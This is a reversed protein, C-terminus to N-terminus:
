SRAGAPKVEPLSSGTGFPYSTSHVGLAPRSSTFVIRSVVPVRVGVGRDDMGYGTAIGVASDRSRTNCRSSPYSLRYQQQSMSMVSFNRENRPLQLLDDSKPGGLPFWSSNELPYRPRSVFSIARRWRTDLKLICPAIYVKVVGNFTMAQYKNLCPVFKSKSITGRNM